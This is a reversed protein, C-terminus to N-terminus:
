PHSMGLLYSRWGATHGRTDDETVIGRQSMALETEPAMCSVGNRLICFQVMSSGGCQLYVSWVGCLARENNRQLYTVPINSLFRIKGAVSDMLMSHLHFRFKLAVKVKKPRKSNDFVM